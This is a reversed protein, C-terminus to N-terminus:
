AIFRRANIMWVTTPAILAPTNLVDPQNIPAFVSVIGVGVGGSRGVGL